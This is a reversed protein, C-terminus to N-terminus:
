KKYDLTNVADAIIETIWKTEDNCEYSRMQIRGSILVLCGKKVHEKCIEALKGWAVICFFDCPIKGESDKYPRDIAITFTSRDTANTVTKFDVDKISRGVLTVNNYTKM